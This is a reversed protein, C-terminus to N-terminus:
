GRSIVSKILLEELSPLHRDKVSLIPNSIQWDIKLQEDNWKIGTEFQPNYVSSCKYFFHADELTAFGHAFGEPILLMNHQSADLICQYVKGFTTSKERLDVVVDLVKGTIVTVLKAQRFPDLQLHLGRIVGKKSFSVNEQVFKISPAITSFPHEKYLEFFWGREDPYVAPIIEFLGNIPTSKIEM